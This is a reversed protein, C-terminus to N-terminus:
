KVDKEEIFRLIDHREIMKLHDRALGELIEQQDMPMPDPTQWPIISLVSPQELNGKITSSLTLAESSESLADSAALATVHFSLMLSTILPKILIM